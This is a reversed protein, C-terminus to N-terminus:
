KKLKYTIFSNFAKIRKSTFPTSIDKFFIEFTDEHFIFSTGNGRIRKTGKKYLIGIKNKTIEDKSVYGLISAITNKNETHLSICYYFDTLSDKRKINRAPINLVYNEFFLNTKRRMTKVDFNMKKNKFQIEFDKGFDQGDIAGFSREPRKLKYLDAFVIEGITGTLRLESTKEKKNADWINKIPHHKLSFDVLKKAYNIQESSVNISFYFKNQM